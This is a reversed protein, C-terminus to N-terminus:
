SGGKGETKSEHHLEKIGVSGDTSVIARGSLRGDEASLSWDVALKGRPIAQPMVRWRLRGMPRRYMTLRDASGNWLSGHLGELGVGSLQDRFYPALWAYARDAPLTALLAAAYFLGGLLVYGLAKM